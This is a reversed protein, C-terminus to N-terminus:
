RIGGWESATEIDCADCDFRHTHCVQGDDHHCTPDATGSCAPTPQGDAQLPRTCYCLVVSCGDHTCHTHYLIHTNGIADLLRDRRWALYLQDLYALVCIAMIIAIVTLGGSWDLTRAALATM